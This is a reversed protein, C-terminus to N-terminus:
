WCSEGANLGKGGAVRRAGLMLSERGRGGRETVPDCLSEEGLAVNVSARPETSGSLREVM